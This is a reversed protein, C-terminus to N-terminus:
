GAFRYRRAEERPLVLANVEAVAEGLERSRAKVVHVHGAPCGDRFEAAATAFRWFTACLAAIRSRTLAVDRDLEPSGAREFVETVAPLYRGRDDELQTIRETLGHLLALCNGCEVDLRRIGQECCPCTGSLHAAGHGCTCHDPVAGIMRILCALDDAVDLWGGILWRQESDLLPAREISGSM